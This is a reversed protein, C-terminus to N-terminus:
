WYGGYGDLGGFEYYGVFDYPRGSGASEKNELGCFLMDHQAWSNDENFTWDVGTYLDDSLKHSVGSYWADLSRNPYLCWDLVFWANELERLYIVYAHYGMITDGVCIKRRFSPIGALSMLKMMYLSGDECDGQKRCYTEDPSAWFDNKLYLRADREYHITSLVHSFISMAKDDDNACGRTLDLALERMNDEVKSSVCNLTTRVDVKKSMSSDTIWQVEARTWRNDWYASLVGNLFPKFGNFLLRSFWRM